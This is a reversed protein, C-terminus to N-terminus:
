RYTTSGGPGPRLQGDKGLDVLYKPFSVKPRRQSYIIAIPGGESHAGWAEPTVLNRRSRHTKGFQDQYEYRIWTSTVGRRRQQRKETVRGTAEIGYQQLELLERSWGVAVRWAIFGSIAMAVIFLGVGILLLEVVAYNHWM